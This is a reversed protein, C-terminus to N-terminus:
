LAINLHNQVVNQNPAETKNYVLSNLTNKHHRTKLWKCFLGLRCDM